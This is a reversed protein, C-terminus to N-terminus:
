QIMFRREKVKIIDDPSVLPDLSRLGEELIAQVNVVVVREGEDLNPDAKILEVKKKNAYQGFGGALFIAKSVTFERENPINYNGPKIVEGWIYFQGGARDLKPILVIDGARLEMDGDFNGTTFMENVNLEFKDEVGEGEPNGRIITVKEADAERNFNGASLIAASVTLIDDAPLSLPGPHQVEGILTIEGLNGAIQPFDILVTARYYFDVELLSKIDHALLRCTKGEAKVKGILPIDIEGRSNVLFGLPRERDEEVVYTLRNGVQISRTDDLLGMRTPVEASLTEEATQVLLRPVMVLGVALVAGTFRFSALGASKFIM